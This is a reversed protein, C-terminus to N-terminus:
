EYGVCCVDKKSLSNTEGAITRICVLILKKQGDKRLTCYLVKKIVPDSETATKLQKANVPLVNIQSLNFMSAVTASGEGKNRSQM